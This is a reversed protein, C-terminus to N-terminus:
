RIIKYLYFILNVILDNLDGRERIVILCSPYIRRFTSSITKFCSVREMGFDLTERVVNM